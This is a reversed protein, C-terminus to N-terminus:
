KGPRTAQRLQQYVGLRDVVQWHGTIRGHALYYITIGSMTIRRASAPFGPLDGTYTGAWLWTVAVASNDAFLEQVDFRQDPFPARSRRVREKFGGLDLTQKDWPDGPDHHITYSGAVYRDCAEVNGENWVERLFDTVLEMANSQDEV